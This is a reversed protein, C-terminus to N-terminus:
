GGAGTDPRPATPAPRLPVGGPGEPPALSDLRLEVADWVQKMYEPDDGHVDTFGLLEDQTVGHARLISDRAAEELAGGGRELAVKRLDVYTAVFTDRDLSPQEPTRGCGAPLLSLAALLAAAAPPAGWRGRRRLPRM